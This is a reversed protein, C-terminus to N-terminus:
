SFVAEVPPDFDIEEARIPEPLKDAKAQIWQIVDEMVQRQGRGQQLKLAKIEADREEIKTAWVADAKRRAARESDLKAKVPSLEILMKDLDALQGRVKDLELQAEALKASYKAKNEIEDSVKKEWRGKWDIEAVATTEVATEADMLKTRAM